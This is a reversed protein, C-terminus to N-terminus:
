VNLAVSKRLIGSVAFSQGMRLSTKPQYVKVVLDFRELDRDSSTPTYKREIEGDLELDPKGNWEGHQTPAFSKSTSDALCVSYTIRPCHSNFCVLTTPCNFKTWFCPRKSTAISSSPSLPQRVLKYLAFGFATVM